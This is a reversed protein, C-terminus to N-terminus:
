HQAFFHYDCDSLGNLHCSKHMKNIISVKAIKNLLVLHAEFFVDTCYDVKNQRVELCHTSLRYYM